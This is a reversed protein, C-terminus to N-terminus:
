RVRQVMFRSGDSMIEIFAKGSLFKMMTERDARRLFDEMSDVAIMEPEPM